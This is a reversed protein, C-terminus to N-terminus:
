RSAGTLVRDALDRFRASEHPGTPRNGYWAAEFLETAGGFEPAVGPVNEGVEVRYEGTTRGPVEDVLGRGALDAVLARYRCRLAARWDGERERAAAETRWDDASRLRGAPAAVPRTADPTVGRAFRIVFFTLVAAAVALIIWAVIASSGTGILNGLLREIQRVVWDKIRQVISPEPQRFEPRDLVQEAADRAQESSHDPVPLEAHAAPLAGVVPAAVFLGAALALLARRM